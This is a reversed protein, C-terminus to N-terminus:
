GNCACGAGVHCTYSARICTDGCAKGKRCVKCCSSSSGGSSGGYSPTYSPARSAVVPVPTPADRIRPVQAWELKDCAECVASVQPYTAPDANVASAPLWAVQGDWIRAKFFPGAGLKAAQDAPPQFAAVGLLEVPTGASVQRLGGDGEGFCEHAFTNGVVLANTKVSTAACGAAVQPEFAVTNVVSQPVPAPCDSTLSLYDRICWGKQAAPLKVQAWQPQLAIVEVCSGLPLGGVIEGSTSPAARVNLLDATVVGYEQGSAPASAAINVGSAAAPAVPAAAVPTPTPTATMTILEAFVWQGTNLKYWDCAENCGAVQVSEGPALRGAVEYQTGPGSRLNATTNAAGRGSGPASRVVATPSPVATPAATPAMTPLGGISETPAKVDQPSCTRKAEQAASQARLLRDGYKLGSAKATVAACGLRVLEQNLLRGDALWVYRLLRGYTDTPTVDKELYVIQGEVLKQNAQKASISGPGGDPSDIGLYRVLTDNGDLSVRVSDGEGASTVRVPLLGEAPISRSPSLGVPVPTSTPPAAPAESTPAAQPQVLFAAIWTGDDLQYWDCADNCGTVQVTQGEAIGGVRDYTTAPGARLNANDTVVGGFPPASQGPQAAQVPLGAALAALCFLSFLLVLFRVRTM